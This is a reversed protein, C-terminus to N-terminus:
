KQGSLAQDSVSLSEKQKRTCHALKKRICVKVLNFNKLSEPKTHELEEGLM